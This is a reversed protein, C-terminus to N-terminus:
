RNSGQTAASANQPPAMTNFRAKQDDSLSTYFAQLKPRITNMADVMAQLRTKVADLREVPTQPVQSLCSARLQDTTDRSAQKLAALADQQQQSNPQVVQEIRQIPLNTADGSHQSCLAAIDGGAPAQGKGRSGMNEFRQKQEDSLSDYFAELPGRVVDVAQIVAELRAEATDLRAVPTLPMATPCSAKIIDNAKVAAPSLDSLATLQDGTPQVVQKIREVPFDTVGPALGNCSEEAAANTEALAQRDEQTVGGYTPAGGYYINPSGAYGGYGGYYGGYGGSYGGDYWYDPAYGYDAGFYPGPAFISILLFDPGYSWFPDYYDYPWLAFTFIDGYIFPWFVPGAWGGWGHGWHNWGRGWFHGGWHNWKNPDGFANRNFGTRNFNHLGHFNQAVFQNHALQNHAFRTRAAQNGGFQNHAFEGRTNMRNAANFGNHATVNHAGAVNHAGLLNHAGAINRGMFGSAAHGAFGHRAFGNGAFGHGAFTSGGMGHAAFGRMGGGNPHLGGGGMRFAGPGGGMRFAGAGGGMHFAGAGGGIHMGGGGGGMRFAGPGGGMHFAGPGGGMHFAGAGGGMHMGGGGGNGGMHM